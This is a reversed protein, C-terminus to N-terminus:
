HGVRNALARPFQSDPHGQSRFGTTHSIRDDKCPM